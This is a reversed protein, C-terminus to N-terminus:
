LESILHTSIKKVYGRRKEIFAEFKNVDGILQSLLPRAAFPFVCLSVVSLVLHLFSEIEEPKDMQSGIASMLMSAVDGINILGNLTPNKHIESLVFIPLGPNASLRNFYLDIIVHMKTEISHDSLLEEAIGGFLSEMAEQFIAQFLAEKTKFYYHLLGKNMEARDALEQMKLGDYGKELFLERATEILKGRTIESKKGM